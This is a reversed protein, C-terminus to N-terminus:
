DYGAKLIAKRLAAVAKRPHGQKFASHGAVIIRAGAQIVDGINGAHIGGDVEIVAESNMTLIKERIKAVKTLMGPVYKQGYFGPNVTMVVIFDLYPILADLVIEPTGPNIAIGAKKGADRIEQIARHPHEEAEWHFSVWEVPPKLFLPLFRRPERVMLHVDLPLTPMASAAEVFPTGITINPVFHGDMVDLHILDASGEMASKIQSGLNYLDAAIVSVSLLCKRDTM